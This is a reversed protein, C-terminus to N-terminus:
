AKLLYLLLSTVAAALCMLLVGIPVLIMWLALSPRPRETRLDDSDARRAKRSRDTFVAVPVTEFFSGPDPQARELERVVEVETQDPDIDDPVAGPEAWHRLADRAAAASPYRRAPDKEMLKAVVRSFEAPVTPNLDSIPDAYKTRHRKMKEISTGGPFPPQGTLSFYLSCGLAYLDARADVRAADDVQEPAIYDM